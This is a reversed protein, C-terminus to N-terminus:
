RQQLRQERRAGSTGLFGFKLIVPQLTESEKRALVFWACSTQRSLQNLTDLVTMNTGDITLRATESPDPEGPLIFTPARTLSPDLPSLIQRMNEARYDEHNTKFTKLLEDLSSTADGGRRFPSRRFPTDDLERIEIGAPVAALALLAAFESVGRNAALVLSMPLPKSQQAPVTGNLCLGLM